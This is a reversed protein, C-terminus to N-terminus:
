HWSLHSKRSVSPAFPDHAPACSFFFITQRSFQSACRSPPRHHNSWLAPTPAAAALLADARPHRLLKGFNRWATLNTKRASNLSASAKLIPNGTLGPWLIRAHGPSAARAPTIETRSKVCLTLLKLLAHIRSSIASRRTKRRWLCWQM